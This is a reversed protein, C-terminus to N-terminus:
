RQQKYHHNVHSYTDCVHHNKSCATVTLFLTVVTVVTKVKSMVSKDTIWQQYTSKLDPIFANVKVEKRETTFVKVVGLRPRRNKKITSFM